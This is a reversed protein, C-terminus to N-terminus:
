FRYQIMLNFFLDGDLSSGFEALYNNYYLRVLPKIKWDKGPRFDYETELILWTNLQNFGAEYPAFGVRGKWNIRNILSSSYHQRLSTATYFRRNEADAQIGLLMGGRSTNNNQYFGAATQLFVNAQMERRNVRHLLFNGQALYGEVFGDGMNFTAYHLGPAFYRNYGYHIMYEAATDQYELMASWAGRFPVPRAFLSVGLCLLVFAILGGSRIKPSFFSM